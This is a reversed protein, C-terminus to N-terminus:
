KLSLYIDTLREVHRDFTFKESSSRASECMAAYRQKDLVAGIRDAISEVDEPADVVFGNAGDVILEAGGSRRTTIVPIGSALAELHVLGFPEYISPVVCLDSAAYYKHIEPQPGCHIVRQRKVLHKYKSFPGKGAILVTLPQPCVEVASLLYALGKREFGSGVFLVVREENSVSYKKRVDDRFRERNRPHFNETDIGHYLVEIDGPEVEYNAMIENKVMESIAVVKKFRHGKFIARELALVLRHYPNFFISLRTQLGSHRRRKKLWEIHCGDGAFYVDQYLTKDHSQIIDFEARNKKLIHYSSFAFSLDRVISNFGLSPVKHVFINNDNLSADWQAAFIHVEHARSALAEALKQMHSEAGGHFTYKKRVLAIKM